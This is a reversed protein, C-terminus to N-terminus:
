THGFNGLDAHLATSITTATTGQGLYQYYHCLGICRVICAFYFKMIGRRKVRLVKQFKRLGLYENKM